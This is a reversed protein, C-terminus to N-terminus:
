SNNEGALEEKQLERKMVYYREIRLGAKRCASVLRKCTGDKLMCNVEGFQKWANDDLYKASYAM